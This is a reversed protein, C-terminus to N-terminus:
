RRTSTTTSLRCERTTRLVFGTADVISLQISAIFAEGLETEFVVEDGDDPRSYSYRRDDADTTFSGGALVGGMLVQGDVTWTVHVPDALNRYRPTLSVRRAVREVDSGPERASRIVPARVHVQAIAQPSDFVLSRLHLAGLPDLWVGCKAFRGDSTRM